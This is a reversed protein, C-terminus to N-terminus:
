QILLGLIAVAVRLVSSLIFLFPLLDSAHACSGAERCGLGHVGEHINATMGIGAVQAVGRAGIGVHLM